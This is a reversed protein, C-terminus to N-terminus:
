HSENGKQDDERPRPPTPALPRHDVSRVQSSKPSWALDLEMYLTNEALPENYPEIYKFGLAEYLRIATKLTSLTDLRMTKYGTARARGILVEVLLRGIALGRFSPRVYLRKMECTEADLRRMAVCGSVMGEWMALIFCADPQAYATRLEDVSKEFRAACTHEGLSEGYESVLDLATKFEPPTRAEILSVM